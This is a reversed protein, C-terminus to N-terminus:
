ALAWVADSESLAKGPTDSVLAESSRRKKEATVRRTVTTRVAALPVVQM